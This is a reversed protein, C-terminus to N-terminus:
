IEIDTNDDEIITDIANNIVEKDPAIEPKKQNARTIRIKKKKKKKKKNAKIDSTGNKPGKSGPKRRRILLVIGVILAIGAVAGVAIYQILEQTSMRTIIMDKTNITESGSTDIVYTDLYMGTVYATVRYTYDTDSDATEDIYETVDADLEAITEYLAITPLTNSTTEEEIEQDTEEVITEEKREIVFKSITLYGENADSVDEVGSWVLKGGPAGKEQYLELQFNPKQLKYTFTDLKESLEVTVAGNETLNIRNVALELVKLNEMQAIAEPIIEIENFSLLLNELQNMSLIHEPIQTIQNNVLSIQQLSSLEEIGKPIDTIKNNDLNIGTLKTLSSLDPLQTLKNDSISLVDLKDLSKITDPFVSFNNHSLSLVTLETCGSLDPLTSLDNGELYLAELESTGEFSGVNTSDNASGNVETLRRSTFIWDPVLKVKNNSYSLYELNYLNRLPELTSIDNNSLTLEKVNIAYQMGVLNTISLGALNLTTPLSFMDEITLPDGSAVNAASKLAKALNADSVLVESAYWAELVAPDVTNLDFSPDTLILEPNPSSASKGEEDEDAAYVGIPAIIFLIIMLISLTKKLM